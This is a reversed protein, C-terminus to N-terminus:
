HSILDVDKTKTINTLRMFTVAYGPTKLEMKKFPKEFPGNLMRSIFPSRYRNGVFVEMVRILIKGLETFSNESPSGCVVLADIKESHKKIYGRVLLSGM